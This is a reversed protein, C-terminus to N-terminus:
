SRKGPYDKSFNSISLTRRTGCNNWGQDGRWTQELDKISEQSCIPNRARRM